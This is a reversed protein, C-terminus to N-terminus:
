TSGAIKGLCRTFEGYRGGARGRRQLTLSTNPQARKRENVTVMIFSAARARIPDAVAKAGAWCAPREEAAVASLALRDTEMGNMFVCGSTRKNIIREGMTIHKREMVSLCARKSEYTNEEEEEGEDAGEITPGSRADRSDNQQWTV